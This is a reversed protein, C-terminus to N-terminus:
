TASRSRALHVLREGGRLTSAKRKGAHSGFGFEVPEEGEAGVGQRLGAHGGAPQFFVREGGAAEEGAGHAIVPDVHRRVVVCGPRGAHHDHLIAPVVEPGLPAPAHRHDEVVQDVLAGDGGAEADKEIGTDDGGGAVARRFADLAAEFVVPRIIAVCTKEDLLDDGGDGRTIRQPGIAVAHHQEAAAAAGEAGEVGGPVLRIGETADEAADAGVDAQPAAVVGRREDAQCLGLRQADEELAAALVEVAVRAVPPGGVGVHEGGQAVRAVLHVVGPRRLGPVVVVVARRDEGGRQAPEPLIIRFRHARAQIRALRDDAEGHGALAPLAQMGAGAADGVEGGIRGAVDM